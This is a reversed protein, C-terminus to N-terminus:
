VARGDPAQAATVASAPIHVAGDPGPLDLERHTWTTGDGEWAATNGPTAAVITFAGAAGFAAPAEHVAPGDLRPGAPGPPTASTRGPAPRWTWATSTACM